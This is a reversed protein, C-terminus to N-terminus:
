LLNANYFLVRQRSARKQKGTCTDMRKGQGGQVGAIALHGLATGWVPHVRGARGVEHTTVTKDEWPSRQLRM